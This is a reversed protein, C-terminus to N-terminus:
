KEEKEENTEKDKKERGEVVEDKDEGEWPWFRAGEPRVECFTKTQKFTPYVENATAYIKGGVPWTVTRPAIGQSFSVAKM